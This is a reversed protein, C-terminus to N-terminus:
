EWEKHLSLISTPHTMAISTWKAIDKSNAGHCGFPLGHSPPALTHRLPPERDVAPLNRLTPKPVPVAVDIEDGSSSVASPSHDRENFHFRSLRRIEASGHARDVPFLLALEAPGSLNPDRAKLLGAIGEAEIHDPDNKLRFLNPHLVDLVSKQERIFSSEQAIKKQRFEQKGWGIKTNQEPAPFRRIRGALWTM